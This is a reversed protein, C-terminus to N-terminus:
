SSRRAGMRLVRKLTQRLVPSRLVQEAVWTRRIRSVLRGGLEYDREAIENRLALSQTGADSVATVLENCRAELNEIYTRQDAIFRVHDTWAQGLTQVESWLRERQQELVTVYARPTEMAGIAPHNWLSAAGNTNQLNFLEVGWERYAEPHRQTIVDYLYLMQNRNASRYLSGARV